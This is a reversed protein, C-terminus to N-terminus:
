DSTKVTTADEVHSVSLNEELRAVLNRNASLRKKLVELVKEDAEVQDALIVQVSKLQKLLDNDHQTM